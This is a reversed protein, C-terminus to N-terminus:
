HSHVHWWRSVHLATANSLSARQKDRHGGMLGGGFGRGKDIGIIMLSKVVAGMGM